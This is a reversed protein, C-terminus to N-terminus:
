NIVYGSISIYDAGSFERVDEPKYQTKKPNDLHCLYRAYGRLSGVDGLWVGGIQDFYKRARDERKEGELMIMLHWHPKMNEGSLSVDSDHCPSMLAPVNWKNVIETFNKVSSKEFLVCAFGSMNELDKFGWKKNESMKEGKQRNHM